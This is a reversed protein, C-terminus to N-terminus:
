KLRNKEKRTWSFIVNILLILVMGSLIQIVGVTNARAYQTRSSSVALDRIIFSISKTGAAGKTLFFVENYLLFGSSVAIVSVTKITDKIMPITIYWDRKMGLCNDLTAAEFIDTPIALIQGLVMITSAGAFFIYSATMAILNVGPTLLVSGTYSPNFVRIIENIVGHNPNYLQLFILGMAASSIISPIIYVNRTIKWGRLKKSLSLAISVALPVQIVLGALAWLLSNRLAEWFFPYERFIYKYNDFIQNIGLFVPANVNTYDWKMFSSVLVTSVSYFYFVFFCILTPLLFLIIFRKKQNSRKKM